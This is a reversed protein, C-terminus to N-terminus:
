NLYPPSRPPDFPEDADPLASETLEPGRELRGLTVLRFLGLGIGALVYGITIVALAFQWELAALGVLIVLSALLPFSHRGRLFTVVLHPYPFRSVMLLGLVVLAVPMCWMIWVDAGHGKLLETFFPLDDTDKLSCFFVLLSAVVAAAAPSPLGAFEQHDDADASRVEVNFRALRMAACLVYSAAAVYYLKPHTPLVQLGPQVHFEILVKALFAPAVGFTVMDALSDLQAGFQSTQRTLRAVAGDVADFVMAVFILLGAVEIKRIVAPTLAMGSQSALMVADVAKAMALFGFFVNGLTVVSPLVPVTKLYRLGRRARGAPPPELRTTTM